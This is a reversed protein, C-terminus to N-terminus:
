LIQIEPELAVGSQDYVTERVYQLLDKVDKATAGGKNIVFGAHKDSVQAGGISYGKLGAEQILAGAFHGAPRKFASGCSPYELPQKEKRSAMNRDMEAKIEAKDGAECLFTARLLYLEIEQLRSHRYSLGLDEKTLVVQKGQSDICLASELCDSIEGGYAGANMYVGGGVTGPIGYAFALGKKGHEMAYVSLASLSTGCLATIRDGEISIGRIGGTAIVAGDFGEDPFLLNSANGMVLYPMSVEKCHELLAAFQEETEPRCLYRVPGGVRMSTYPAIVTNETCPAFQKM